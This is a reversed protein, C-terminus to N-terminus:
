IGSDQGYKEPKDFLSNSVLDEFFFTGDIKADREPGPPYRLVIDRKDKIFKTLITRLMVKHTELFAEEEPTFLKEKSM